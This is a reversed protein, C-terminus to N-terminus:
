TPFVKPKGVVNLSTNGRYEEGSQPAERSEAKALYCLREDPAECM